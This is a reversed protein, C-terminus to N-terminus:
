RLLENLLEDGALRPGDEAPNFNLGLQDVLKAFMTRHERELKALPNVHAAGTTKTTNLLGQETLLRRCEDARDLSRLAEQLLALRPLSRIQRKTVVGEWIQRARESLGEPVPAPTPAPAPEVPNKSKM